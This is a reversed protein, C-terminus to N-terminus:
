VVAQNLVPQGGGAFDHRQQLDCWRFAVGFTEEHDAGFEGFNEARDDTAEATGVTDYRQDGGVVVVFAAPKWWQRQQELTADAALLAGETGRRDAGHEVVGDGAASEGFWRCGLRQAWTM